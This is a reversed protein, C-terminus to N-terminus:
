TTLIKRVTLFLYYKIYLSDLVYIFTQKQEEFFKCTNSKYTSGSVKKFNLSIYQKKYEEFILYKAMCFFQKTQIICLALNDKYLIYSSM